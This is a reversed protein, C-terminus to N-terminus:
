LRAYNLKNNPKSKTMETNNSENKFLLFGSLIFVYEFKHWGIHFLSHKYQIARSYIRLLLPLRLQM